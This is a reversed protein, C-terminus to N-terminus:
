LKEEGVTKYIPGEPTLISRKLEVNNISVTIKELPPLEPSGSKLRCITLHPVYKRKEKEFGEEALTEELKKAMKELQPSHVPVYLVRPRGKPPFQGIGQFSTEFPQFERSLSKLASLVKEAQKETIEGLFKINVHYLEPSVVRGKGDLKKRMEPLGPLDPVDVCVFARM